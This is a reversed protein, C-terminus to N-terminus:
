QKKFLYLISSYNGSNRAKINSYLGTLFGKGLNLLTSNAPNKYGESLFSVYYSDFRMPYHRILSLGFTDALIKISHPNFHHLHRPLDWGAWYEKYKEADWSAYNPLAILLYGDSKLHKLIFDLTKKINPIHELVHFASIIDFIHNEPIHKLKKFVKQNLKQTAIARAKTSPEMGQIQWGKSQFHHLLDATGCGIDLISHQTQLSNILSFKKTIAHKRITAYLTPILGKSSEQHSYYAPFDYYPAIAKKDPRPNTFILQCEPCQVLSFVEQSVAFDKTSSHPLFSTQSCLPCRTRTKLM